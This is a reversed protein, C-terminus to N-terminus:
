ILTILEAFYFSIYSVSHFSIYSFFILICNSLDYFLRACELPIVYLGLKPLFLPSFFFSSVVHICFAEHRIVSSLLLSRMLLCFCVPSVMWFVEPHTLRSRGALPKFGHYSCSSSSLRCLFPHTFDYRMFYHKNNYCIICM